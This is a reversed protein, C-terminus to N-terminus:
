WEFDMWVHEPIDYWNLGYETHFSISEVFGAMALADDQPQEVLRVYFHFMVRDPNFMLVNYHAFIRNLGYEEREHLLKCITLANEQDTGVTALLDLVQNARQSRKLRVQWEELIPYVFADREQVRNNNYENRVQRYREEEGFLHHNSQNLLQPLKRCTHRTMNELMQHNIHPIRQDNLITLDTQIMTFYNLMLVCSM